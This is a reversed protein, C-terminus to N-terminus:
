HDSQVVIIRAANFRKMKADLRKWGLSSVRKEDLGTAMAVDTGSLDEFIVKIMDNTM